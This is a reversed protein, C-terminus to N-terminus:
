WFLLFSIVDPEPKGEVTRATCEFRQRVERPLGPDFVVEGAISTEGPTTSKASAALQAKDITYPKSDAKDALAKECAVLALDVANGGCGALLTALLAACPAFTIIRM